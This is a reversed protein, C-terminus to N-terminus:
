AKLLQKLTSEIAADDLGGYPFLVVDPREDFTKIYLHHRAAREILRAKVSESECVILIHLNSELGEIRISDPLTMSKLAELILDRQRKSRSSLRKLHRAYHGQNMYDALALQDLKSVTQAFPTTAKLRATLDPPLVMYGARMGLLLNRSFSGIYIVNEGGALGQISPIQFANHRFVYNYDDEIILTGHKKAHNILRIRDNISLVDGSPYLNSPSITIIDPNCALLEDLTECPMRQFGLTDFAIAARDFIPKLYGVVRKSTIAAFTMLHNQIGAGIIVNDPSAEVGRESELHRLVARRLPLEGEPRPNEYLSHGEQLMVHHFAKRLPEIRFDGERQALNPYTKDDDVTDDKSFRASPLTETAMVYYGSKPRSQVYGEIHLQQYAKEVTTKSVDHKRALARISPMKANAPLTKDLIQTKFHQTIQMYLPTKSAPDLWM